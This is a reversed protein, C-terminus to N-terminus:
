EVSGCAITLSPNERGHPLGLGHSFLGSLELANGRETSFVSSAQRTARTATGM